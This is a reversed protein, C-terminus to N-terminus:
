RLEVSLTFSVHVQMLLFCQCHKLCNKKIWLFDTREFRGKPLVNQMNSRVYNILVNCSYPSSSVVSWQGSVVCAWSLIWQSWFGTMSDPILFGSDLQTPCASKISPLCSEQVMQRGPLSEGMWHFSFSLYWFKLDSSIKLSSLHLFVEPLYTMFNVHSISLSFNIVKKLGQSHSGTWPHLHLLPGILM